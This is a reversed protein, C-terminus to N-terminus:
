KNEFTLYGDEGDLKPPSFLMLYFRFVKYTPSMKNLTKLPFFTFKKKKVLSLKWHNGAAILLSPIESKPIM